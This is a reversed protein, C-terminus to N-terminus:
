TKKYIAPFKVEIKGIKLGMDKNLSTEGRIKDACEKMQLQPNGSNIAPHSWSNLIRVSTINYTFFSPVHVSSKAIEPTLRTTLGYANVKAIEKNSGM